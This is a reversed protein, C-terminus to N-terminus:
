KKERPYLQQLKEETKDGQRRTDQRRDPKSSNRTQFHNIKYVMLANLLEELQDANLATGSVSPGDEDRGEIWLTLKDVGLKVGVFEGSTTQIKKVM